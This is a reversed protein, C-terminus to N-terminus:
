VTVLDGFQFSNGPWQDAFWKLLVRATWNSRVENWPYGMNVAVQQLAAAVAPPFNRLQMNLTIGTNLISDGYLVAFKGATAFMGLVTRLATRWTDAPTIWDAPIVATELAATFASREAATITADLNEPIAYVGAQATLTAHQDATVEAAVVMTTEGMGGYDRMSWNVDLGGPNMRWKLYSPGRYPTGNVVVVQVPLIYLRIM